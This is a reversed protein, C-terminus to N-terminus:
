LEKLYWPRDDARFGEQELLQARVDRWAADAPKMNEWLEALREKRARLEGPKEKTGETWDIRNYYLMMAWMLAVVSLAFNTLVLIKGLLTMSYFRKATPVVSEQNM